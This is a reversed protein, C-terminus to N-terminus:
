RRGFYMSMGATSRRRAGDVRRQGPLDLQERALATLSSKQM